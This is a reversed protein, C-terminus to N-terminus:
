LARSELAAITRSVALPVSPRAWLRGGGWLGAPTDRRWITHLIGHVYKTDRNGEEGTLTHTDIRLGYSARVTTLIHVATGQVRKNM